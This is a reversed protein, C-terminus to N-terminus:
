SQEAQSGIFQLNEQVLADDMVVLILVTWYGRLMTPVLYLHMM